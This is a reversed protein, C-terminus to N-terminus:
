VGVCVRGIRFGQILFSSRERHPYIAPDKLEKIKGSSMDCFSGRFVSGYVWIYDRSIM